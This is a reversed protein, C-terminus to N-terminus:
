KDKCFYQPLIAVPENNGKAWKILISEGYANDFYQIEIKHLGKSLAKRGSFAYGAGHIGDADVVLEGNIYLRSGDDSQLVFLYVGDEEVSLYGDFTLGFGDADREEPLDVSSATYTRAKTMKAFDDLTSIMGKFYTANLGPETNNAAEVAPILETKTIETSRVTGRKGSATFPAATVTTTQTIAIPKEYLTSNITPESGDLTYRVDFNGANEIPLEYQYLDTYFLDGVMTNLGPVYFEMGAEELAKLQTPLKACFQAYCQQNYPTWATEALALLRPFMFLQVVSYDFLYEAWLNAQAGMIYLEENATLGEPIPNYTYVKELPLVDYDTSIYLFEGPSMVVKHGAKAGEIGGEEGRWSMIATTPAIMNGELIEDWGIMKKGHETCFKEIRLNFLSQLQSADELNHKRMVAQCKPCKEWNERKCEDGGIHFYEGPFLEFIEALVDEVLTYSAENGLCLPDSFEFPKSMDRAFPKGTCNLHNYCAIIANAHGPLDIEPVITIHRDAAYSVIEKIEEQTYFGGYLKKSPDNTVTKFYDWNEGDEDDIRWAGMQTLIPHKKIEVRWGQDDSLHWHFVNLKYKALIDLQTKVEAVSFFHRSVDLMNGRWAFRPADAVAVCPIAISSENKTVPLQLLTQLGYFIGAPTKAKVVIGTPTVNLAYGEAQTLTEDLVLSINGNPEKTIAPMIGTLNAFDQAFMEAETQLCSPASITVAEAKFNGSKAEISQPQPIIAFKSGTQKSCSAFLVLAITLISLAKRM